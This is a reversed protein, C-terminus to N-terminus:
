DVEFQLNYIDSMFRKMISSLKNITKIKHKINEIYQEIKPDPDCLGHYIVFLSDKAEPHLRHVGIQKYQTFDFFSQSISRIVFPQGKNDLYCNYLFQNDLYKLIQRIEYLKTKVKWRLQSPTLQEIKFKSDM